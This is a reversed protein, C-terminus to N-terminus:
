YAKFLLDKLVDSCKKGTKIEPGSLIDVNAPKNQSMGQFGISLTLLLLLVNKM